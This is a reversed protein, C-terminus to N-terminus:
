TKIPGFSPQVYGRVTGFALMGVLLWLFGAYIIGDLAASYRWQLSCIMALSTTQVLYTSWVKFRWTHSNGFESTNRENASPEQGAELILDEPQGGIELVARNQFYRYRSREETLSKYNARCFGLLYSLGIVVYFLVLVVPAFSPLPFLRDANAIATVTSVGVGTWLAIAIHWENKHLMTARQRHAESARLYIDARERGGTDNM